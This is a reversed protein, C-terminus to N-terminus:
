LPVASSKLDCPQPKVRNHIVGFTDKVGMLTSSFFFFLLGDFANRSRAPRHEVFALSM